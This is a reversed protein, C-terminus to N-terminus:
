RRLLAQFYCATKLYMEAALGALYIASHYRGDLFLEMAEELRRAASIDLEQITEPM